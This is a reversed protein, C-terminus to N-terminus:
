FALDFLLWRTLQRLHTGWHGLAIHNKKPLLPRRYKPPMMSYFAEEGEEGEVALLLPVISVKHV